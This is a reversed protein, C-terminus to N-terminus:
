QAPDVMGSGTGTQGYHCKYCFGNSENISSYSTPKTGLNGHCGTCNGGSTYSAGHSASGLMWGPFSHNGHPQSALLAGTGLIRTEILMPSFTLMTYSYREPTAATGSSYKVVAKNGQGKSHTNFKYKPSALTGIVSIKLQSGVYQNINAAISDIKTPVLDSALGNIRIFYTGTALATLDFQATGGTITATRATVGGTTLLEAGTISTVKVTGSSNLSSDLAITLKNVTITGIIVTKTTTNTLGGSDKVQLAITHTGNASYTHSATKTTSYATWIGNNEWDWRVQLATLADQADTSASANVAFSTTTTGSPPTVTFSAIPATNPGVIVTKTITNTLGGTDKVQLAITHTGNVSYAHSATKTTSYATWVGNNEWSWRVQLSSVADQVDTSASANVAFSTTAPGGPPTVTFSAIPATNPGVIVTKTITNTLGGTDKVQLAITHTGNVSYTHSATKTTSYATWVGNNEWSWRVQLSTVVDQADTSASANVAFSTTTPGGPPTVTFSAIPATNPGVIVTKTITNTLGGTDKVQLAITHTGNAVYSHKATKTTSYATWIGNNEWDWRVQLATVADQADTSASANVAFSTTTPGGPPTVTFSAIPATNVASVAVKRSTASLLGGQSGTILVLVLAASLLSFLLTIRQM